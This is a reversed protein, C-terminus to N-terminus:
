RNRAIEQGAETIRMRAVGVTQGGAVIREVQATALGFGM